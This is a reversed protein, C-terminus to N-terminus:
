KEEKFIIENGFVLGLRERAMKEIFEITKTFKEYETLNENREMEDEIADSYYQEQRELARNKSYLKVMNFGLVVLLLLLTITVLHSQRKKNRKRSM